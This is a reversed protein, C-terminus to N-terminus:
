LEERKQREEEAEIECELEASAERLAGIAGWFFGESATSEGDPLQMEYYGSGSLQEGDDGVLSIEVDVVMKAM